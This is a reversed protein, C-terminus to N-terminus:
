RGARIRTIGRQGVERGRELFDAILALERNTYRSYLARMERAMPGYIEEFGGIGESILEVIVKRRDAPDSVRRVMGARELRDVLGTIAGTTLGTLEALQGASLPGNLVLFDLTELDTSNMGVRDAVAQSLLVSQASVERLGKDLRELIQARTERM